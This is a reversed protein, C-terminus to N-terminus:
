GLAGLGLIRAIREFDDEDPLFLIHGGVPDDDTYFDTKILTVHEAVQAGALISQWVAGAMDVAVGPVSPTLTLDTMSSLANLYSTIMINGMEQLASLAMENLEGTSDLTLLEVAAMASDLPLIFAMHGHADGSVQIYIGVVPEEETGEMINAAAEFPILKAEPVILQLKKQGDLMQSLATAAHGAGINGLEQLLDLKPDRM